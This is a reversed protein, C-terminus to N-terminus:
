KKAILRVVLGLLLLLFLFVSVRGIIDGHEVFFTVKNNLNVSGRLTAKEWYETRELIRGKQDIFASVGTNACRAIDRRTEIARLSAYTLHQRYGPTDGWWADNTIICLAQAGKQVYGTCYEGYVSEYCIVSGVPVTSGDEGTVNLLSIGGQGVCRGMLGGLWDDIKCFVAPYPTMEVGVVLKNKHFIQPRVATRSTMIATNHSEIWVGNGAKRATHSPKKPSLIYEYTSAGFMLNVNPYDQLLTNFRRLTKGDVTGDVISIGGTFTEPALVLLPGATSDNKRYALGEEIQEVLIDNQQDQTLAEFKHYPDINPQTIFVELEQGETEEYNYWIVASWVFPGCLVLLSCIGVITKAKWNWRGASGDSIAVLLGCIGLNSLWIWLSGGLTGTFEYWQICSISKAFANGLVLWPWSIDAWTLYYREWAIWAVMLFVYPLSGKFRRKSLRFLEFIVSMQLANALSAFIGGGVTANCVWFTTILNFVLFCGYHVWFYRRMKSLGAIRESCLLPVLAFLAVFGCHPVLYPISLLLASAAALIIILAKKSM